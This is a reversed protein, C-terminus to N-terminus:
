SASINLHSLDSSVGQYPAAPRRPVSKSLDGLSEIMAVLTKVLPTTEEASILPIADLTKMRTNFEGTVQKLSGSVYKIAM